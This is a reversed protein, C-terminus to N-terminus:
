YYKQCGEYHLQFSTRSDNWEVWYTFRGKVEGTVPYGPNCIYWYTVELTEYLVDKWVPPPPYPTIQPKIVPWIEDFLQERVEECSDPGAYTDCAGAPPNDYGYTKKCWEKQPPNTVHLKHSWKTRTSQRFGWLEAEIFLKGSCLQEKGGGAYAGQNAAPGVTVATLLVVMLICAGKIIRGM